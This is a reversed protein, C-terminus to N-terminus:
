ITMKVINKKMYEEEEEEESTESSANQEEPTDHSRRAINLTYTIDIYPEPCCEYMKSHREAPAQVLEWKTNGKFNSLDVNAREFQLDIHNADHTWSGFILSCNFPGSIPEAFDCLTQFKAPVIWHASGDSTVFVPLQNDMVKAKFDGNADNFLYIDPTWMVSAPLRLEEIGGYNEPDWTMYENMWSYGVWGSSAMQGSKDDVDTIGYLSLEINVIMTTADELVPRAFIASESANVVDDYLTQYNDRYNALVASICFSVALLTRIM